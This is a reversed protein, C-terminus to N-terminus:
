VEIFGVLDQESQPDDVFLTALVTIAQLAEILDKAVWRVWECMRIDPELDSVYIFLLAIYAGKIEM